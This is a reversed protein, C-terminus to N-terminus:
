PRPKPASDSVHAKSFESVMQTVAEDRSIKGELYAQWIPLEVKVIPKLGERVFVGSSYPEYTPELYRRVTEASQIFVLMHPGHRVILDTEAFGAKLLQEGLQTLVNDKETELDLAHIAEHLIADLLSTGKITGISVICLGSHDDGWATFAGPGIAEAVLYIPVVRGAEAMGLSKTLYAFFEPEKPALTGHIQKVAQDIMAKHLPWVKELFDKEVVALSQALRVARERLPIVEGTRLKYTLPFRAFVQVAEAATECRFPLLDGQTFTAYFPAARAAEVAEAFGHLAPPKESSSALRYIYSYLDIFPKIRIEIHPARNTSTQKTAQPARPYAYAPLVTLTVIILVSRTRLFNKLNM